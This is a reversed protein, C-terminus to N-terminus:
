HEGYRVEYTEIRKALFDRIEDETDFYHREKGITLLFEWGDGRAVVETKIPPDNLFSM